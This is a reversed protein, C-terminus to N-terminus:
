PWPSSWHVFHTHQSSERGNPFVLPNAFRRAHRCSFQIFHIGDSMKQFSLSVNQFALPQDKTDTSAQQFRFSSRERTPAVKIPPAWRNFSFASTDTVKFNMENDLNGAWGNWSRKAGKHWVRHAPKWKGITVGVRTNISRMNRYANGVNKNEKNLWFRQFTDREQLSRWPFKNM